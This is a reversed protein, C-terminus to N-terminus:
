LKAKLHKRAVIQNKLLVMDHQQCLRSGLWVRTAQSEPSKASAEQAEALDSPVVKYLSWCHLVDLSHTQYFVKPDKFNEQLHPFASAWCMLGKEWVSTFLAEIQVQIAWMRTWINTRGLRQGAECAEFIFATCEFARLWGASTIGFCDIWISPQWTAKIRAANQFSEDHKM